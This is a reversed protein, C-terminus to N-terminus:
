ILLVLNTVIIHFVKNQLRDNGCCYLPRDNAVFLVIFEQKTFVHSTLPFLVNPSLYYNNAKDQTDIRGPSIVQM